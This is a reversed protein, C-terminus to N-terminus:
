TPEDSKCHYVLPSVTNAVTVSFYGDVSSTGDTCSITLTIPSEGSTMASGPKAWVEFASFCDGCFSGM